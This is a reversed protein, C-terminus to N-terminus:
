RVFNKLVSIIGKLGKQDVRDSIHIGFEESEGAARRREVNLRPLKEECYPCPLGQNEAPARKVLRVAVAQTIIKLDRHIRGLADLTDKTSPVETEDIENKAKQSDLRLVESLLEKMVTTAKVHEADLGPVLREQSSWTAEIAQRDLIMKEIEALRWTRKNVLSM